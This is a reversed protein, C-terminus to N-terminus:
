QKVIYTPNANCGYEVDTVQALIARTQNPCFSIENNHEQTNFNTPLSLPDYLGIELLKMIM